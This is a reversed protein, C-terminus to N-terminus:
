KGGAAPRPPSAGAPPAGSQADGQVATGVPTPATQGEKRQLILEELPMTGTPKPTVPGTQELGPTRMQISSNPAMFPQPYNLEPIKQDAPIPRVIEPTVIVMLETNNRNASKSQFLKGLLPIASLGPIKNLTETMRQDMLGAIVFSQGGELEV